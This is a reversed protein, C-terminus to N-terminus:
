SAAVAVSCKPLLVSAPILLMVNQEDGETASPVRTKKLYRHLPFPLAELWAKWLSRAERVDRKSRLIKGDKQAFPQHFAFIADEDACAKIGTFETFLVMTCASACLGHFHIETGADSYAKYKKYYESVSGGGDNSINVVPASPMAEAHAATVMYLSMM